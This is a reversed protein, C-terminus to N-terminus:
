PSEEGNLSDYRLVPEMVYPHFSEPRLGSYVYEITRVADQLFM